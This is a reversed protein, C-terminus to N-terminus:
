ATCRYQETSQEARKRAIECLKIFEGLRRDSERRFRIENDIFYRIKEDISCKDNRIAVM